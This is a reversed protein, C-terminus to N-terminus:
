EYILELNDIILTSGVAGTFYHGNVSSAFVITIHTPDLSSEYVFPIILESLEPGSDGAVVRARAIETISDGERYELIGYITCSDAGAINEVNFGGFINDPDNLTARIYEPGAQYSFDIKVAGPRFVFPAGFKTAQEPDTPNQIAGNIDFEGTFLTATNVPVMTSEETMLQVLTNDGDELPITGYISYISTGMNATTWLTTVEEMGPQLFTQNDLGTVEHWDEFDSNPLQNDRLYVHWTKESGSEARVTYVIVEEKDTYTVPVGSAPSISAGVSVTISPTLSVPIESEDIYNESFISVISKEEDILIDRTEFDVIDIATVSFNLILAEDSKDDDKKCGFALLALLFLAASKKM